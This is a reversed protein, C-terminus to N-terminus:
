ARAETLLRVINDLIDPSRVYITSDGTSETCRRQQETSFHGVALCCRALASYDDSQTESLVEM